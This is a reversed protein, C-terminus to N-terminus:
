FVFYESSLQNILDGIAKQKRYFSTSPGRNDRDPGRDGVATLAIPEVLVSKRDFSRATYMPAIIEITKAQEEDARNINASLHPPQKSPEFILDDWKIDGLGDNGEEEVTNLVVNSKVVTGEAIAPQPSSESSRRQAIDSEGVADQSAAEQRPRRTAGIKLLNSVPVTYDADTAGRPTVANKREAGLKSPVGALGKGAKCNGAKSRM